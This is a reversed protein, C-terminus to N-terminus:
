RRTMAVINMSFSTTGAEGTGDVGAVVEADLRTGALAPAVADPFRVEVPGTVATATLVAVPLRGLVEVAKPFVISPSCTLSSLQIDQVEMQIATAPVSM